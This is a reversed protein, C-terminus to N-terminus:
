ARTLLVAAILDNVAAASHAATRRRDDGDRLGADDPTHEQFGDRDFAM